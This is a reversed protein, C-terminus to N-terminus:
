PWQAAPSPLSHATHCHHNILPAISEPLVAVMTQVRSATSLRTASNEEDLIFTPHWNKTCGCARLIVPYEDLIFTTHVEYVTILYAPHINTQSQSQSQSLFHWGPSELIFM